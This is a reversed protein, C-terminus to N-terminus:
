VSHLEKYLESRTGDIAENSTVLEYNESKIAQRTPIPRNKQSRNRSSVGIEAFNLPVFDELRAVDPRFGGCVVAFWEIFVRGPM